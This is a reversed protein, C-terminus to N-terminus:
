IEVGVQLGCGVREVHEPKNATIENQPLKSQQRQILTDNIEIWNWRWASKFRIEDDVFAELYARTGNRRNILKQVRHILVYKPYM